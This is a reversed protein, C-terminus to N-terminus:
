TRRPSRMMRGGLMGALAGIVMMGATGPEPVYIAMSDGFELAYGPPFNDYLSDLQTWNGGELGIRQITSGSTMYLFTGDPSVRLTQHLWAVGPMWPAINRGTSADENDFRWLGSGPPGESTMVFINGTTDITMTAIPAPVYSFYSGTGAPSFRLIDVRQYGARAYYLDGSPGFDLYGAGDIGDAADAFTTPPGGAAPYRLISSTGNNVVYYDGNPGYTVGHPLSVGDASSLAITANGDGDLEYVRSAGYFGARLRQGDPTFELSTLGARHPSHWFPRSNGTLPDWEYIMDNNIGGKFWWGGVYLRGPIFEARAAAVASLALSGVIVGIAVRASQGRHCFRMPVGSM